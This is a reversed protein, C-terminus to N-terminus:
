GLQLRAMIIDANVKGELNPSFLNEVYEKVTIPHGKESRRHVSFDIQSAVLKGLTGGGPVAAGWEMLDGALKRSEIPNERQFEMARAEFIDRTTETRSSAEVM